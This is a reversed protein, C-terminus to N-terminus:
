IITVASYNVRRQLEEIFKTNDNARQATSTAECSSADILMDPFRVVKAIYQNVLTCTGM